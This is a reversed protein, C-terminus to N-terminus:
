FDKKGIRNSDSSVGSELKQLYRKTLYAPLLWTLLLFLCFSIEFQIIDVINGGAFDGRAFYHMLGLIAFVYISSVIWGSKIAKKAEPEDLDAKKTWHDGGVIYYMWPAVRKRQIVIAHGVLCATTYWGPFLGFLIGLGSLSLWGSFYEM